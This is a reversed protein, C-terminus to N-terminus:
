DGARVRPALFTVADQVAGSAGPDVELVIARTDPPVPGAIPADATAATVRQEGILTRTGDASLAFVRATCDTWPGPRAPSVACAFRDFRAGAPLPYTATAPAPMRVDPLATMPDDDTRREPAPTWRRGGTPRVADPAIAGLALVAADGVTRLGILRANLREYAVTDEGRSDVGLVGPDTTLSLRADADVTLTRAILAVGQDDTVLLGRAPEPPNALRIEAVGALPVVAAGGADTEVSVSEGISDVFGTLVDGNALRVVDARPPEAHWAAGPRAIRAVRELPIRGRGLGIVRGVIAEPDESRDIDVVLRQGDTLEVFVRSADSVGAFAPLTRPAGASISVVPGLAVRQPRGDRRLVAAAEDMEVLGARELRLDDTLVRVPTDAWAAGAGLALLLATIPTRITRM